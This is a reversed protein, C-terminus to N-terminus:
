ELKLHFVESRTFLIKFLKNRFFLPFKIDVLSLGPAKKLNILLAFLALLWFSSQWFYLVIEFCFREQFKHFFKKLFATNYESTAEWPFNWGVFVSAEWLFNGGVLFSTERSFIGGVFFLRINPCLLWLNIVKTAQRWGQKRRRGTKKDESPPRSALYAGICQSSCTNWM